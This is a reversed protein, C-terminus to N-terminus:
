TNSQRLIGDGKECQLANLRKMEGTFPTPKRALTETLGTLAVLCRAPDPHDLPPLLRREAIAASYSVREEGVHRRAFAELGEGLRIAALAMEYMREYGNILPILEAGDSAIAVRRRGAPDHLQVLRFASANDPQSLQTM